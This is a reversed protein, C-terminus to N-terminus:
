LSGEGPAPTISLSRESPNLYFRTWRTRALPWENESRQVFGDVRRVQLQVPPQDKWDNEIGKLFHDFFRKQLTVGHRTYFETWHELGHAELWKQKSGPPTVEPSRCSISAAASFCEPIPVAPPALRSFSIKL